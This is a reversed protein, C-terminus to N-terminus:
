PKPNLHQSVCPRTLCLRSPPVYMAAEDADLVAARGIGSKCKV